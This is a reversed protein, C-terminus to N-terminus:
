AVGHINRARRSVATMQAQARKSVAELDYVMARFKHSIFFLREALIRSHEEMKMKQSSQAGCGVRGIQTALCECSVLVLEIYAKYTVSFGIIQLFKRTLDRVNDSEVVTGELLNMDAQGGEAEAYVLDTLLSVTEWDFAEQQYGMLMVPLLLPHSTLAAFAKLQMYIFAQQDGSFGHLLGCFLAKRPDYSMSIM